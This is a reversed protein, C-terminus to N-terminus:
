DDKKRNAKNEKALKAQRTSLPLYLCFSISPPLLLYISISSMQKSASGGSALTDDEIKAASLPMDEQLKRYRRLMRLLYFFISPSLHCKNQHLYM